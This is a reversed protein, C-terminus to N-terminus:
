MIHCPENRDKICHGNEWKKKTPFSTKIYKSGAHTSKVGCWPADLTLCLFFDRVLNIKLIMTKKTFM